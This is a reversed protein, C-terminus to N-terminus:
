ASAIFLYFVLYATYLLAFIKLKDKGIYLKDSLYWIILFNVAVFFAGKGSDVIVLNVGTVLILAALLIFEIDKRKVAEGIKVNNFFLVTLMCFNIVGAYPYTVDYVRAVTFTLAYLIFLALLVACNLAETGRGKREIGCAEAM